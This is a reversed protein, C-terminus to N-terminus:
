GVTREKEKQIKRMSLQSFTEFCVSLKISRQCLVFKWPVSWGIKARRLKECKEWPTQISHRFCTLLKILCLCVKFRYTKLRYMKAPGKESVVTCLKCSHRLAFDLWSTSDLWCSSLLYPMLWLVVSWDSEAVVLWGWQHNCGPKNIPYFTRNEGINWMTWVLGM